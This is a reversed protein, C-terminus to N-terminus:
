DLKYLNIFGTTIEIEILPGGENLTAELHNTELRSIDLYDVIDNIHFGSAPINVDITIEANMDTNLYANITGTLTTIEIDEVIDAIEVDIAGNVTIVDYVGSCDQITIAGNTSTAGVFGQVDSIVILGSTTHAFLGGTHDTFEVNHIDVLGNVTEAHVADGEIELDELTIAGNTTRFFPNNGKINSANIAGNVTSLTDVTVFMPVDLYMLVSVHTNNELYETYISLMNDQDSIIVDVKDFEEEGWRENTQKVITLSITDNDTGKVKVIGNVNNVTLITNSNVDIKKHEYEFIEDGLRFVCGTLSVTLIFMGIMVLTTITKKEYKM